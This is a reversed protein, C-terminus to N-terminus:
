RRAAVIMVGAAVALIVMRVTAAKGDLNDRYLTVVVECFIPEPRGARRAYYRSRAVTLRTIITQREAASLRAFDDAWLAGGQRAYTPLVELDYFRRQRPAPRRAWLPPDLDPLRQHGM